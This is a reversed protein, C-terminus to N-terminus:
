DGLIFYTWLPTEINTISQSLYFRWSYPVLKCYLIRIQNCSTIIYCFTPQLIANFFQPENKICYL